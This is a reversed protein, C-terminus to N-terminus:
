FWMSKLLRDPLSHPCEEVRKQDKVLKVTFAICNAEGCDGCNTQPLLAYIEKPQLLEKLLYEPKLVEKQGHVRNVFEVVAVLIDEAADVERLQGVIVREPHLVVPSGKCKFTLTPGFPEYTCFKLAANLYPMLESIDRSLLATVRFQAGDALCPGVGVIRYDRLYM